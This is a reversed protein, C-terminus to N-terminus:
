TSSTIPSIDSTEGAAPTQCFVPRATSGDDTTLKNFEQGFVFVESASAASTNFTVNQGDTWQWHGDIHDIGIYHAQLLDYLFM